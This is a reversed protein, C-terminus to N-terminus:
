HNVIFEKTNLLVWLLDRVGEALSESTELDALARKREEAKPLRHLARLYAEDVLAPVDFKSRVKAAIDEPTPLPRAPKRAPANKRANKGKKNRKNKRNQRLKELQRRRKEASRKQAARKQARKTADRVGGGFKREKAQLAAIWGDKRDILQWMQRDNRTFVTQILTPDSSRECDCTTERAPKGFIDLVYRANNRKYKRSGSSRPGIARAGIEKRFAAINESATTAQVIADYAVEAPLRRLIRRSFNREDLANTENPKWSRQYADSNLIRRHLAKMDFGSEAFGKALDDLLGRHSPPNALNMDDPPDVIGRGFHNAWVRNVFARSFYPNEPARMWDVLPSRLDNHAVLSVREGGLIRPTVVRQSGKKKKARKRKKKGAKPLEPARFFVEKLPVPEGNAARERMVDELAKRMMKKKDPGDAVTIGAEMASMMERTDGRGARSTGYQVGDFFAQFERFDAQSWQDFPHKHCQACQLRVGLFAYSFSLAREEPKRMNKRAWYHPMTERKAFDKPNEDRLYTAMEKTFDEYSQGPKRSTGLVIGAAIEDYPINEAVVVSAVNDVIDDVVECM